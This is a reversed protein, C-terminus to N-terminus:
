YIGLHGIKDENFKNIQVQDDLEDIGEHLIFRPLEQLARIADKVEKPLADSGQLEDTTIDKNDIEDKIERVENRADTAARQANNNNAQDRMNNLQDVLDNLISVTAREDLPNEKKKDLEKKLDKYEDIDIRGGAENEFQNNSEMEDLSDYVAPISYYIRLQETRIDVNKIEEELAFSGTYHSDFYKSVNIKDADEGESNLRFPKQCDFVATVINIESSDKNRREERNYLCLDDEEYEEDLNLSRLAYLFNTKGSENEGILSTIDSEVEVVGSDAISRYNQVRVSELRHM